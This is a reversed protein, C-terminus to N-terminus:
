KRLKGFLGKKEAGPLETEYGLEQIKKVVQDATAGELRVTAEAKALDVKIGAVGPLAGVASEIKRVCAGCGMGKVPIVVEETM